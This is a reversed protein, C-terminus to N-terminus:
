SIYVGCRVLIHNPYTCGWQGVIHNPATGGWMARYITTLRVGWVMGIYDISLHLSWMIYSYRLLFGYHICGASGSIHPSNLYRYQVQFVIIFTHHLYLIFVFKWTLM